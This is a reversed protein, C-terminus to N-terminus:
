KRLMRSKSRTVMGDEKSSRRRLSSTQGPVGPQASTMRTAERAMDTMMPEGGGVAGRPGTAATGHPRSLSSHVQRSAGTSDNHPVSLGAPGMDQSPNSSGQQLM